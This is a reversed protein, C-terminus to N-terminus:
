RSGDRPRPVDWAGGRVSGGRADLLARWAHLQRRQRVVFDLADFPLSSGSRVVLELAALRRERATSDAADLEWLTQQISFPRGFRYRTQPSFEGERLGWWTRWPAIRQPPERHHVGVPRAEPRRSRRRGPVDLLTAGTIRELASAAALRVAPRPDKLRDILPVISGVHGYWGAAELTTPGGTVVAAALVGAVEPGGGIALHVAADMRDGQGDRTFAVARRLAGPAGLVLASTTARMAVAADDHALLADLVDASSAGGAGGLGAAVERVVAISPDAAGARVEDISLVGRRALVRLAVVRRSADADRVWSRMVGEIGQHPALALADSVAERVAREDLAATRALRVVQDLADEGALSGFLFVLAWTLEPDTVPRRELVAVLDPLVEVGAAVIADVRALLRREAKERGAWTQGPLDDHRRQAGLVALDEILTRARERLISAEDRAEGRISRVLSAEAGEDEWAGGDAARPNAEEPMADALARARDTRARLEDLTRIAGAGETRGESGRRPRHAPGGVPVRAPIPSRRWALLRPEDGSAPAVDGDGDVPRKLDFGAGPVLSLSQWARALMASAAAIAPDREISPALAAWAHHVLGIASRVSADFRPLDDSAASASYVDRLADGVWGAVERTPAAPDVAQSLRELADDLLLRASTLEVRASPFALTM